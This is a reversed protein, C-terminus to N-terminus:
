RNLSALDSLGAFVSGRVRTPRETPPPATEDVPGAAHDASPDTAVIERTAEAADGFMSTQVPAKLRALDSARAAWREDSWNWLGLFHTGALNYTRCDLFHNEGHRKWRRRPEGNITEVVVSEAVLQRFYDEGLDAPFHCYGKPVAQGAEAEKLGRSLYIMIASKLSWGGVVWVKVGHRKAKGASLGSKQVEASEARAIAPKNWGDVGKVAVANPRRKVFGYVAEANYGSDILVLDPEVRAGTALSVGRDLLAALKPWAGEGPADTEGPLLQADITWSERNPGWGVTEVYIGYGQVDCAVTFVLPGHPARRIRFDAEKRAALTEWGVVDDKADYARGLDVNEFVQRAVPDSGAADEKAALSDWTDLYNMVGTIAWSKVPSMLARTRARWIEFDAPTLSKAPIVGDADPATAIWGGIANLADRDSQRLEASCGPCVIRCRYPPKAERVVDEWDFDSRTLCHPCGMYWRRRDGAEYKREIRSFRKLTPSSCAFEKSLGFRKYTKIRGDALRDPDGESRGGKAVVEEPWADIDDKFMYRISHQRLTAGSNAGALLIFGGAFVVRNGKTGSGDRSKQARVVGGKEPALVACDRIMPDFKETKWDKAANITAQVYMAPGPERHMMHGFWNEGAASGASQAPKMLAGTHCPDEPGLADMIDILYPMADHTWKGPQSSAEPSLVRHRLAWDSVAIPADPRIARAGARCLDAIQELRPDIAELM